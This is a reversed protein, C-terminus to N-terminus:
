GPKSNIDVNPILAVRKKRLDEQPASVPSSYLCTLCSKLSSITYPLSSPSFVSMQSSSTLLWPTESCAMRLTGLHLLSLGLVINLVGGVSLDRTFHWRITRSLGIQTGSLGQLGLSPFRHIQHCVTRTCAPVWPPWLLSDLDRSHLQIFSNTLGRIHTSPVLSWVETLVALIRLWQPM